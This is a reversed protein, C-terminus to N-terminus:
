EKKYFINLRRQRASPATAPEYFTRTGMIPLPNTVVCRLTTKMARVNLQARVRANRHAMWRLCSQELLWCVHRILVSGPGLMPYAYKPSVSSVYTWSSFLALFYVDRQPSSDPKGGNDVDWMCLNGTPSAESPSSTTPIDRSDCLTASLRRCLVPNSGSAVTDSWSFGNPAQSKSPGAPFGLCGPATISCLRRPLHCREPSVYRRWGVHNESIRRRVGWLV